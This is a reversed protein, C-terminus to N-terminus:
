RRRRNLVGTLVAACAAVLFIITGFCLVQPAMGKKTFGYAYLPFTQTSGNIFSTIVYDDISMALALLFAALIGPALMPLTVKWFAVLPTAGLDSAAQELQTGTGSLRARLTAVVYAINFAVHVILITTLGMPFNLSLFFALASSGVVISPAAIDLFLLSSIIGRGWFRHRALALALPLGLLVSLAGSVLAVLISTVFADSIGEADLLHAYWTVTFGKWVPSIANHSAENFSYVVMAVIPILLFVLVLCYFIPLGPRVRARRDPIDDPHLPGDTFMPRRPKILESM